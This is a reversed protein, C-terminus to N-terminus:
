HGDLTRNSGVLNRVAQTCRKDVVAKGGVAVVLSRAPTTYRVVSLCRGGAGVQRDMGVVFGVPDKMEALVRRVEAVALSHQNLVQNSHSVIGAVEATGLNYLDVLVQGEVEAYEATIAQLEPCVELLGVWNGEEAVVAASVLGAVVVPGVAVEVLGVEAVSGVPVM